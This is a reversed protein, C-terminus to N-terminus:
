TEEFSIVVAIIFLVKSTVLVSDIIIKLDKM